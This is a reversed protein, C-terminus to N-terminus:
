ACRWLLLIMQSIYNRRCEQSIVEFPHKGDYPVERFEKMTLVEIRM